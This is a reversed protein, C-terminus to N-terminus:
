GGAAPPFLDITQDDRLPTDLSEALLSADRGDVFLHAHRALRGNADVLADRLSPHHAILGEILQRVTAGPPVPIEVSKAGVLERFAAYLRVTM